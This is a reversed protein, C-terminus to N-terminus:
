SDLTRSDVSLSDAVASENAKTVQTIQKRTPDVFCEARM